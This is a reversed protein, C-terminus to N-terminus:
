IRPAFRKTRRWGAAALGVLGLMAMSSPEPVATIGSLTGTYTFFGGVNPTGPVLYAFTIEVPLTLTAIGGTAQLMGNTASANTSSASAIDTLAATGGDGLAPSFLDLNGGSHLWSQSTNAFQGGTVVIAGTSGLNFSLDRIKGVGFGVDIGYNGDSPPTLGSGDNNPAWQGNVAGFINASQFTMSTPNILDDIDVTITGSFQTTLAGAAQPNFNFNGVGEVNANGTLALTSNALSLDFVYLDAHASWAMSLLVLLAAPFSRACSM